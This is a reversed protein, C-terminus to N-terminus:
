AKKPARCEMPGEFTQTLPLLDGKSNKEAIEIMHRLTKAKLQTRIVNFVDDWVAKSLCIEQHICGKEELCQVPYISDEVAEFIEWASLEDPQKKLSFGGSRGRVSEILNNDRLRALIHDIYDSPIGQRKAINQRQQLGNSEHLALDMMIKLAYRSKSTINM